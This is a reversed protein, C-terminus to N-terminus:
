AYFEEWDDKREMDLSLRRCLATPRRCFLGAAARERVVRCARGMRWLRQGEEPGSPMALRKTIIVCASFFHSLKTFSFSLCACACGAPRSLAPQGGFRRRNQGFVSREADLIGLPFDWGKKRNKQFARAEPRFVPMSRALFRGRAQRGDSRRDRLPPLTWFSPNIFCPGPAPVTFAGDTGGPGVQRGPSVLRSATDM